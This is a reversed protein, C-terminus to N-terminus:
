SGARARRGPIHISLTTGRGPASTLTHAGDLMRVREAIDTLGLGSGSAPVRDHPPGSQFGRGNDRVTVHLGGTDPWVEVGARTAQSHRVINNISEQIIRYLSIEGEPTLHGDLPAIDASFEIGSADAVKEIMEELVVTLGLRELNLPRLNYAIARVEILAQSAAADIEDFQEKARGADSAREGIAARNKIILLHQGLSDHLESAIRKREQEQSAILQRSFAQQAVQARQLRGIRARWALGVLTVGALITVATFWWTRYFPPLVIVQITKGRTDWVGDGNDAIVEFSYTGPPLHPYYATRRTGAEVWDRDLGALRYRFTVHEPRSWSLGTYRIELNRQGPQLRVAPAAAVPERDVTVEEISVLPAQMNGRRPDVIVVGKATAFWITGDGAKWGAPQAGNCERTLMGDAVGYAFSPVRELRGDAVANLDKLSARFIGKNCSMWLNGGDEVIKFVVNNYLGHETGISALRGDKFRTLGGGHTGIWLAGASDEYFSLVHNSALGDEVPECGRGAYRDL